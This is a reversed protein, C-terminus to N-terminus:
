VAGGERRYSQATMFAGALVGFAGSVACRCFSPAAAAASSRLVTRVASVLLHTEGAHAKASSAVSYLRPPLPRLLGLLQEETLAEPHETFLDILQRDAAFRKFAEAGALAEVDSRGTLKVYAQVVPRTLTSRWARSNSSSLGYRTSRQCAASCPTASPTAQHRGARGERGADEDRDRVRARCLLQDPEAGRHEIRTSALQRGEADDLDRLPHRQGLTRGAGPM